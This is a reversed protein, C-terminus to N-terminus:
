FKKIGDGDGGPAEPTSGHLFITRNRNMDLMPIEVKSGDRRSFVLRDLPFSMEPAKLDSYGDARGKKLYALTVHPTYNPHTQENVVTKEVVRHMEMLNPSEVLVVLVDFDDGEFVGIGSFAARPSSFNLMVANQLKPLAAPDTIGFLLTIHPDEELGGASLDDPDIKKRMGSLAASVTGRLEFQTSAMGYSSDEQVVTVKDKSNGEADNSILVPVPIGNGDELGSDVEVASGDRRLVRLKFIGWTNRAKTAGKPHKDVFQEM